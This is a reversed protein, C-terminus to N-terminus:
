DGSGQPNIASVAFKVIFLGAIVGLVIPIWIPLWRIFYFAALSTEFIIGAIVGSKTFIGIVATIIMTIILAFFSLSSNCDVNLAGSIGGCLSQSVSQTENNVNIYYPITSNAYSEMGAPMSTCSYGFFRGFKECYTHDSNWVACQNQDIQCYWVPDNSINASQATSAECDSQSDSGSYVLNCQQSSILGGMNAIYYSPDGLVTVTTNFNRYNPSICYLYYNGNELGLTYFPVVYFYSPIGSQPNAYFYSYDLSNILGDHNFDSPAYQTIYQADIMSQTNLSCSAPIPNGYNDQPLVFLGHNQANLWQQQTPMYPIATFYFYSSQYTVNNADWGFLYAQYTSAHLINGTTVHHSFGSVLTYNTYNIDTYSYWSGYQGNGLMERYFVQGTMNITTSWTINISEYQVPTSPTLIPVSFTNYAPDSIAYYFTINHTGDGNNTLNYGKFIGMFNYGQHKASLDFCVIDAFHNTGSQVYYQLGGWVYNSPFYISTSPCSVQDLNNSANQMLANIPFINYSPSYATLQNTDTNIWFDAEPFSSNLFYGSEFDFYIAHNNYDSITGSIFDTTNFSLSMSQGIGYEKSRIVFPEVYTAGSILWSTLSLTKNEYWHSYFEAGLITNGAYSGAGSSAPKLIVTGFMRDYYWGPVAYPIHMGDVNSENWTDNQMWYFDVWGFGGSTPSSVVSYNIRSNADILYQNYNTLNYKYFSFYSENSANTGIYIDLDSGHNIDSSNSADIYTDDIPYITIFSANANMAFLSLFLLLPIAWILKQM